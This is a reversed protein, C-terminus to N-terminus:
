EEVLRNDKEEKEQNALMGFINFVLDNTYKSATENTELRNYLDKFGSRSAEDKKLLDQLSSIM